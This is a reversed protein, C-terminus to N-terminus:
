WRSRVGCILIPISCSGGRVSGRGSPRVGPGVLAAALNALNADDPSPCIDVDVTAHGTDHLRAAMGGIIVFRVGHAILVRCIAAVHDDDLEPPMARWGTGRRGCGSGPPRM